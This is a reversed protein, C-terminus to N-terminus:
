VQLSTRTFDSQTIQCSERSGEVKREAFEQVSHLASLAVTSSIESSRLGFTYHAFESRPDIRFLDTDFQTM